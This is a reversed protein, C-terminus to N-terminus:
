QGSSRAGTGHETRAEERALLGLEADPRRHPCHHHALYRRSSRSYTGRPATARYGHRARVESGQRSGADQHDPLRWRAKANTSSYGILYYSSLDDALRRM